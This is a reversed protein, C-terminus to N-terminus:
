RKNNPHGRLVLSSLFLDTFYSFPNLDSLHSGISQENGYVFSPDILFTNPLSSLEKFNIHRPQQNSPEPSVTPKPNSAGEPKIPSPFPTTLLPPLTPTSTLTLTPRPSDIPKTNGSHNAESSCASLGFLATGILFIDTLILKARKLPNVERKRSSTELKMTPQESNDM